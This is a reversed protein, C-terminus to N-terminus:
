DQFLTYHFSNPLGVKMANQGVWLFRKFDPDDELIVQCGAGDLGVHEGNNNRSARHGNLGTVNTYIKGNMDFQGDQDNDRWVKFVGSGLQHYADHEFATGVAHKGVMWCNPYQGPILIATGEPNFPKGNLNKLGPKTTGKWEHCVERGDEAIMAFGIVDNFQDVTILDKNRRGYLNPNNPEEHFIYGHAKYLAKIDAYTM